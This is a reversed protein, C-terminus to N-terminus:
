LHDQKLIREAIEIAEAKKISRREIMEHLKELLRENDKKWLKERNEHTTKIEKIIKNLMEDEVSINIESLDRKLLNKGSYKGYVLKRERGLEEPSFAEYTRPDILVGHVHTGTEHTFANYGVVAKTSPVPIGSYREVLKSLTPMM